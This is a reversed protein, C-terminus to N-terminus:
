RIPRWLFADGGRDRDGRHLNAGPPDGCARCLRARPLARMLAACYDSRAYAIAMLPTLLLLSAGMGFDVGLARLAGVAVVAAVIMAVYSAELSAAIVERREGAASFRISSLRLWDFFTMALISAGLTVSAYRGFEAPGLLAGLAVGLAFNAAANLFFVVAYVM